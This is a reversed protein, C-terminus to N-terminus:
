NIRRIDIVTVFYSVLELDRQAVHIFMSIREKAAAEAQLLPIQTPLIFHGAANAAFILCSHGDRQRTIPLNEHTFRHPIHVNVWWAVAANIEANDGELSDGYQITAWTADVVITVWHNGNVNVIGIVTTRIGNALEERVSWLHRAGTTANYPATDRTHYIQM